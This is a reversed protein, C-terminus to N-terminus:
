AGGCYPHEAAGGEWGAVCRSRPRSLPPPSRPSAGDTARSVVDVMWTPTTKDGVVGRERGRLRWYWIGESLPRLLKLTEGDAEIHLTTGPDFTPTPSLEVQAGDTADALHWVLTPDPPVPDGYRPWAPFPPAITREVPVRPGDDRRHTALWRAGDRMARDRAVTGCTLGTAVIGISLALMAHFAFRVLRWPHL